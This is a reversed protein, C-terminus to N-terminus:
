QLYMSVVKGVLLAAKLFTGVFIFALVWPLSLSAAAYLTKADEELTARRASDMERAASREKQYGRLAQGSVYLAAAALLSDALGNLFEVM